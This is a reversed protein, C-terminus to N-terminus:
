VCRLADSSTNAVPNIYAQAKLEPFPLNGAFNGGRYLMEPVRGNLLVWWSYRSTGAPMHGTAAMNAFIGTTCNNTFIHILSLEQDPEWELEM